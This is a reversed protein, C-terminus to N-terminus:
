RRGAGARQRTRCRDRAQRSRYAAEVMPRGGTALVLGIDKHTMLAAAAERSGDEIWQVADAPAGSERLVSRLLEGVRRSVRQARRSPSLIIANRGKLAILVKFIFTAVPHVAPVLGAVVGVPCAIEAIGREADFGIEGFGVKGALQGYIGESAIVNKIAKDRVNGMGTEEVTAVALSHAQDAVADSLAFLLADIQAEDWRELQRQAALARAVMADVSPRGSAVPISEVRAITEFTVANM